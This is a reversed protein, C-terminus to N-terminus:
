KYKKKSAERLLQEQTERPIWTGQKYRMDRVLREAQAPGKGKIANDIIESPLPQRGSVTPQLAPLATNTVPTGSAAKYQAMTTSNPNTLEPNLGEPATIAPLEPQLGRARKINASELIKGGTENWVKRILSWKMSIASIGGKTRSVMKSLVPSAEFAVHQADLASRVLGQTDAEAIIDKLGNAAEWRMANLDNTATGVPQGNNFWSNLNSTFYKRTNNIVSFNTGGIEGKALGGEVQGANLNSNLDEEIIKLLEPNAKASSTNKVKNMVQDVIQATPQMGIEADKTLAWSDIKTANEPISLELEKAMGEISNSKTNRLVKSMIEESKVVSEPVITAVNRAARGAKSTIEPLVSGRTASEAISKELIPAEKSAQAMVGDGKLGKLFPLIWMATDIPHNYDHIFADKIQQGPNWYFHGDPGIGITNKNIGTTQALSQLLGKGINIATKAGELPDVKDGSIMDIVQEAPTMRLVERGLAPLSKVIDVANQGVNTLFGGPQTNAMQEGQSTTPVNSQKVTPINQTNDSITQYQSVDAEPDARLIAQVMKQRINAEDEAVKSTTAPQVGTFWNGITQLRNPKVVNVNILQGGLMQREIDTVNKGGEGFARKSNYDSVAGELAAQYEPGSIQGTDKKNLLDLLRQASDASTSLKQQELADAKESATLDPNYAEYTQKIKAFNKGGTTSLDNQLDSQYQERSYASSLGTDTRVSTEPSSFDTSTDLGGNDIPNINVVSSSAPPEGDVFTGASRSYYRMNLCIRSGMESNTCGM